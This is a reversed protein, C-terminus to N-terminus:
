EDKKPPPAPTAKKDPAPPPQPKGNLTIMPTANSGNPMYLVVTNQGKENAITVTEKLTQLTYILRRTGTQDEALSRAIRETNEIRTSTAQQESRAQMIADDPKLNSPGASILHLPVNKAKLAEAVIHEIRKELGKDSTDKFADFIADFNPYESCLRRIEKRVQQRAQQEYISIGDIRIVRGDGATNDSKNVVVPNGLALAMMLQQVGEPKEYDPLALLVRVDLTIPNKDGLLCRHDGKEPGDTIIAFSEKTDVGSRQVLVLRDGKGQNADGIDVQGPSYIHNEYGSSTLKLGIDPPPVDRYDNCAVLAVFSFALLVIRKLANM